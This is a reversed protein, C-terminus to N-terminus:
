LTILNVNYVVFGDKDVKRSIPLVRPRSFIWEKEELAAAVMDSEDENAHKCLIGHVNLGEPPSRRTATVRMVANTGYSRAFSRAMPKSESFSLCCPWTLFMTGEAIMKNLLVVDEACLGRYVSAEIPARFKKVLDDVVPSVIGPPMIHSKDHVLYFLNQLDQDTM